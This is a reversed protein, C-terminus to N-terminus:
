RERRLRKFVYSPYTQTVMTRDRGREENLYTYPSVGVLEWGDLAVQNLEMETVQRYRAPSIEVPQVVKVEWAPYDGPRSRKVPIVQTTVQAAWLVMVGVASVLLLRATLQRM